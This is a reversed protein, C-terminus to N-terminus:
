KGSKWMADSLGREPEELVDIIEVSARHDAIAARLNATAARSNPADGAVYLRLKLPMNSQTNM